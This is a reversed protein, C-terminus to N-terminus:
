NARATAHRSPPQPPLPPLPPLPPPPPEFESIEPGVAACHALRELRGHTSPTHVCGTGAQPEGTRRLRGSGCFMITILWSPANPDCWPPCASPSSWTHIWLVLQVCLPAVVVIWLM